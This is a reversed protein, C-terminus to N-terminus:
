YCANRSSIAEEELQGAFKPESRPALKLGKSTM